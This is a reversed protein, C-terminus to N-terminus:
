RSLVVISMFTTIDVVSKHRCTRRHRTCAVPLRHFLGACHSLHMGLVGMKGSPGGGLLRRKTSSITSADASPGSQSM